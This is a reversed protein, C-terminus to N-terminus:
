VEDTVEEVGGPSHVPDSPSHVLDYVWLGGRISLSLATRALPFVAALFVAVTFVVDTVEILTDRLVNEHLPPSWLEFLYAAWKWVLLLSLDLVIQAM